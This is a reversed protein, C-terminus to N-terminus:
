DFCWPNKASPLPLAYPIRSSKLTLKKQYWSTEFFCDKRTVLSNLFILILWKIKCTRTHVNLFFPTKKVEHLLKLVNCFPLATIIGDLYRVCVALVESIRNDFQAMFFNTSGIFLCIGTCDSMLAPLFDLTIFFCLNPALLPKM